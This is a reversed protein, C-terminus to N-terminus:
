VIVCCASPQLPPGGILENLRDPVRTGEAILTARLQVLAEGKVMPGFKSNLFVCIRQLLLPKSIAGINIGAVANFDYYSLHTGIQLDDNQFHDNPLRALIRAYADHAQAHSSMRIVSVLNGLEHMSLDLISGPDEVLREIVGNFDRREILDCMRQKFQENGLNQVEEATVVFHVGQTMLPPVKAESHDRNLERMLTNGTHPNLAEFAADLEQHMQWEAKYGNAFLNVVQKGQWYPKFGQFFLPAVFDKFDAASETSHLVVEAGGLFSGDNQPQLSKRASGINALFVQTEEAMQRMFERMNEVSGLEFDIMANSGNRECFLRVVNRHRLVHMYSPNGFDIQSAGFQVKSGNVHIPSNVAMNAM